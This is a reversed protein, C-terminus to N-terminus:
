AATHQFKMPSMNKSNLSGAAKLRSHTSVNNLIMSVVRSTWGGEPPQTNFGYKELLFRFLVLGAAKLRSHTSVGIGDITKLRNKGAAKLRSHTSVAEATIEAKQKYGWGGEPPQTNFGYKHCNKQNKKNWGGEPPQTNFCYTAKYLHYEKIGAAKLRSHTSVM